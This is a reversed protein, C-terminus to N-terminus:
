PIAGCAALGEVVSSAIRSKTQSAQIKIEEDRNVILGAELLVAAMAATRLVVLDDFYYVGADRDAWERNEGPIPESHHSSPFFGARQLAAGIRRACDLSADPHSNKRSVFLSFGSFRESHLRKAGQWNWPRLYRPQVSDHHVSLFFTAHHTSAVATREALSRAAGEDGILVARVRRAALTNSIEHALAGNFAFEPVGRASIAGPYVTSHGVDVAVLAANDAYCSAMMPIAGCAAARACKAMREILFYRHRIVISGLIRIARM